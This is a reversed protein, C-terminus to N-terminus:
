KAIFRIFSKQYKIRTSRVTLFQLLIRVTTIYFARFFSLIALYCQLKNATFNMRNYPSPWSTTLLQLLLQRNANLIRVHRCLNNSSTISRVTLFQLLIRVTTIYFARFFSLYSVQKQKKLTKKVKKKVKKKLMGVFIIQHPLRLQINDVRDTL